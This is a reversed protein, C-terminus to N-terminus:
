DQVTSAFSRLCLYVSRFDNNHHVHACNRRAFAIAIQANSSFSEPHIIDKKQAILTTKESGNVYINITHM